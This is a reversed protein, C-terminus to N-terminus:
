ILCAFSINELNQGITLRIRESMKFPSGSSNSFYSFCQTWSHTVKLKDIPIKLYTRTWMYLFLCLLMLNRSGVTELKKKYFSYFVFNEIDRSYTQERKRTRFNTYTIILLIIITPSLCQTSNSRGFYKSWTMSIWFLSYNEPGTKPTTNEKIDLLLNPYTM